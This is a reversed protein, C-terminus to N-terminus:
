NFLNPAPQPQDLSRAPSYMRLITDQGSIGLGDFVTLTILQVRCKVETTLTAGFM